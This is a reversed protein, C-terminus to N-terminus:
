DKHEGQEEKEGKEGKEASEDDIKKSVLKGDAAVVIEYNTGGIMADAEYVTRGNHSEQDVEKIAAGGSEKTLTEQVAPPTKDFAVKVEPGEQEEMESKAGSHRGQMCAAPGFGIGVIAIALLRWSSRM